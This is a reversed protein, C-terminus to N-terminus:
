IVAYAFFDAGCKQGTVNGVFCCLAIITVTSGFPLRNFIAESILHQM